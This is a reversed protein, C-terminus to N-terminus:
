LVDIYLKRYKQQLSLLFSRRVLYDIDEDSVKGNLIVSNWHYHNLHYAPLINDPYMRRFVERGDEDCKLNVWVNGFREFIWAFVKTNEKHRIVQWSTDHFPTDLYSNPLALCHQIIDKRTTIM